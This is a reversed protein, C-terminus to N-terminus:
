EAAMPQSLPSNELQRLRAEEKELYARTRPVSELRKALQIQFVALGEYRFGVEAAALYFEWM